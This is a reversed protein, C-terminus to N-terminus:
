GAYLIFDIDGPSRGKATLLQAIETHHQMSHLVVHQLIRWAVLTEQRGKYLAQFSGEIQAADLGELAAQWIAQETDLAAQVAALDAYDTKSQRPRAPVGPLANAWNHCAAVTHALLDHISGHGYGPQEFYEAESLSAASDLLRRTTLWTYDFLTQFQAQTFSKEM